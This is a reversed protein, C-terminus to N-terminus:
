EEDNLYIKLRKRLTRLRNDVRKTNIKLRDSIDKYSLDDIRLELIQRDENSLNSIFKNLKDEFEIKHHYDIPSEAVCFNSMSLHYDVNECNDISLLDDGDSKVDRIYTQIHSRIIMYAYSSFSMGKNKEFSFVSNYLSIIGEQYLSDFDLMYDGVNLNHRYIIKYIMMKHNELLEEFAAEDGNKIKEILEESTKMVVNNFM